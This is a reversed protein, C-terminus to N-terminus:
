KAKYEYRKKEERKQRLAELRKKRKHWKRLRYAAYILALVILAIIAGSIIVFPSPGSIEHFDRIEGLYSPLELLGPGAEKDGVSIWIKGGEDSFALIYHKGSKTVPLATESLIWSETGALFDYYVPPNESNKLVRAGDFPPAFPLPDSFFNPGHIAVTPRFNEYKELKPVGVKIHLTQGENADFTLWFQGDPGMEKYFNRQEEPNDIVVATGWSSGENQEYVPGKAYVLGLILLLFVATYIWKMLARPSRTVIKGTAWVQQVTM